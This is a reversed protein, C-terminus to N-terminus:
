ESRILTTQCQQWSGAHPPCIRQEAAGVLRVYGVSPLDPPTDPLVVCVLVYERTQGAVYTTCGDGQTPVPYLDKSQQQEYVYMGAYLLALFLLALTLGDVALKRKTM